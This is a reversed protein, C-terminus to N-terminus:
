LGEKLRGSAIDDYTAILIDPKCSGFDDIVQIEARVGRRSFEAQVEPSRLARFYIGADKAYCPYIIKRIGESAGRLLNLMIRKVEGVPNVVQFEIGMGLRECEGLIEASRRARRFWAVNDDVDEIAISIIRQGRAAANRMEWLLAAKARELFQSDSDM